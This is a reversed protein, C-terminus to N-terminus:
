VTLMSRYLKKDTKLRSAALGLTMRLLALGVEPQCLCVICFDLQTQVLIQLEQFGFQLGELSLARITPEQLLSTIETAVQKLVAEPYDGQRAVIQGRKNAIFVAKVGKTSKIERIITDM